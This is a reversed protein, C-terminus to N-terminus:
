DLTRILGAGPAVHHDVWACTDGDAPHWTISWFRERPPPPSIFSNFQLRVAGDDWTVPCVARAQVTQSAPDIHARIARIADPISLLTATADALATDGVDPEAANRFYPDIGVPAMAAVVQEWNRIRQRAAGATLAFLLNREICGRGLNELEIGLLLRMSANAWIVDANGDVLLIPFPQAETEERLSAPTRLVVPPHAYGFRPEEGMMHRAFDSPEPDMGAGLLVANTQVGDLQLAEAIALLKERSPARTGREYGEITAASVNGASRASTDERSLGSAERAHRLVARWGTVGSSSAIHDGGPPAEPRHVDLWDWTAADLPHWDFAWAAEFDNFSSFIGFFRLREGSKTNWEILGQNRFGDLFPPTSQWLEFLHSMLLPHNQAIHGALALVYPDSLGDDELSTIFDHKYFGILWSIVDDWNHLMGAFHTSAAMRLLQREGPGALDHGIGLEAVANAAGNWAVIEYRENTVLSPWRYREIEHSLMALPRSLRILEKFRRDPGPDRGTSRLLSALEADSLKLYAAIQPLHKRSPRRRATEWSILTDLSIGMAAAAQERTAEQASRRARLTDSWDLAM